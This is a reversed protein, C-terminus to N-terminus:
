TCEGGVHDYSLILITYIVFLHLEEKYHIICLRM